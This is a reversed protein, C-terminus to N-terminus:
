KKKQELEIPGRIEVPWDLPVTVVSGIIVFGEIQIDVADMEKKVIYQGITWEGRRNKIWYHENPVPSIM